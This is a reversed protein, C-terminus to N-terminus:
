RGETPPASGPLDDLLADAETLFREYYRLQSLRQGLEAGEGPASGPASGRSLDDGRSDPAALAVEFLDALAAECAAKQARVRAALREVAVQSGQRFAERLAERLEMIELLFEPDASQTELAPYSLRKMLLEGRSLPDRLARFASNVEIARSLAARRESAPRGSYRDPHLARSLDRHVEALRAQDLLFTPELGLVEFADPVRADAM